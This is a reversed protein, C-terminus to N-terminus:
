QLVPSYPKIAPEGDGDDDDDENDDDSQNAQSTDPFCGPTDSCWDYESNASALMTLAEQLLGMAYFRRIRRNLWIRTEHKGDDTRIRSVTIHLNQVPLGVEKDSETSGRTVDKEESSEMDPM